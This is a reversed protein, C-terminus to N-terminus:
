GLVALHTSVWCLYALLLYASPLFHPRLHRVVTCQLAPHSYTSFPALAAHLKIHLVLYLWVLSWALSVKGIVRFICGGQPAPKLTYWHEIKMSSSLPVGRTDLTSHISVGADTITARRMERLKVSKLNLIQRLAAPLDVPAAFSQTASKVVCGSGTHQLSDSEDQWPGLVVDFAGRVEHFHILFAESFYIEQLVETVTNQPFRLELVLEKM